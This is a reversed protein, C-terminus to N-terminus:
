VVLTEECHYAVRQSIPEELGDPQSAYMLWDVKDTYRWEGKVCEYDVLYWFCKEPKLAGCPANLLEGWMYLSARMEHYVELSTKLQPGMVVLDTDDVFMTGPFEVIWQSIPAVVQAGFGEQQYCHMLVAALM